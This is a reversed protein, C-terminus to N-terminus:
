VLHHRHLATFGCGRRDSKRLGCHADLSSACPEPQLRDSDSLRGSASEPRLRAHRRGPQGPTCGWTITLTPPSRCTRPSTGSERRSRANTTGCKARMRRVAMAAPYCVASRAARQRRCWAACTVPITTPRGFGLGPTVLVSGALDGPSSPDAMAVTVTQSAGPALELSSPSIKAFPIFPEMEVQWPSSGTQGATQPWM